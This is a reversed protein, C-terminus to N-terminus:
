ECQYNLTILNAVVLPHPKRSPPDMGGGDSDEVILFCSM